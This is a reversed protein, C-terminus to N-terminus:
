NQSASLSVEPEPGGTGPGYPSKTAGTEWSQPHLSVLRAMYVMRGPGAGAHCDQGEPGRPRTEEAKTERRDAPQARVGQGVSAESLGEPLEERRETTHDIYNTESFGRPGAPPM